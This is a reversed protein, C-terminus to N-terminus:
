KYVSESSGGTANKGKCVGNGFSSGCDLVQQESLPVLHGTELAWASEIAATASFAYCVDCQGQNKVPGVVGKDRWDLEGNQLLSASRFAAPRRIPEDDDEEDEDNFPFDGWVENLDLEYTPTARRLQENRRRVYAHNALFAKKNTPRAAWLAFTDHAEEAEMEVLSVSWPQGAAAAVLLLLGLMTETKQGTM